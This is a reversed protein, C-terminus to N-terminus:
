FAVFVPDRGKTKAEGIRVFAFLILAVISCGIWLQSNFTPKLANAAAGLALSALGVKLLIGDCIHRSHTAWMIALVISGWVMFNIAYLVSM